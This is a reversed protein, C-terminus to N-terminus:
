LSKQFKAVYEYSLFHGKMNAGVISCINNLLEDDEPTLETYYHFVFPNIYGCENFLKHIDTLTFFKKNSKDLISNENYMFSGNLLGKVVSHHMVNPITAIVYGGPKLIKKVESLLKWPDKSQQIRNGLIIYDFFNSKDKKFNMKYNEEFEGSMVELIKESLKAINPNTEIGYVKANPYQYKLKLLTAGLGCDFELINLENEKPENIRDIIDFKLTSSVNSNFGWKDELKKRNTSLVNSFKIYDKSFSSSGFHHIFSDNCLMMKYGAEIIRMCLDDDEFNGPTFREDMIGIKNLVDRKILMCFAVLRVKQEWKNPNSINTAETFPIMDNVDIYPVSISQYNSCNNTISGTSGVKDDSYLCEKLNDLWRPTVVTDNNLLLIDNEKDSSEIGINCGKPFGVNEDNLIAKIDKQEKLWERTGDTSNNDVVIIEYTNEKTYKRISDVCIRNYVLNNYTLIIISTKRNAIM